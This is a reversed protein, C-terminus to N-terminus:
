SSPTGAWPSSSVIGVKVHLTSGNASEGYTASITVKPSPSASPIVLSTAIPPAISTAPSPSPLAASTAAAPASTGSCGALVTALAVVVLPRLTAPTSRRSRTTPELRSAGGQTGKVGCGRVIGSGGARRYTVEHTDSTKATCRRLDTYREAKSVRHGLPLSGPRLPGGGRGRGQDVDRPQPSLLDNSGAHIPLAAIFVEYPCPDLFCRAEDTAIASNAEASTNVAGEKRAVAAGIAVWM